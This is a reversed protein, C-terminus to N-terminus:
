SWAEEDVFLLVGVGCLAAWDAMVDGVPFAALYTWRKKGVWRGYGTRERGGGRRHVVMLANLHLVVLLIM